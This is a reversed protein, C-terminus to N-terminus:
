SSPADYWVYNSIGRAKGNQNLLADNTINGDADVEVFTIANGAKLCVLTGEPLGTFVTASDGDLEIKGDGAPCQDSAAQVSTSAIGVTGTIFLATAAVALNRTLKM